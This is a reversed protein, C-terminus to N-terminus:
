AADSNPRGNVYLNALAEDIFETPIDSPRDALTKYLERTTTTDNFLGDDWAKIVANVLAPYDDDDVVEVFICRCGDHYEASEKSAERTYVAGRSVLMMCWSCAGPNPKRAWRTNSWRVAEKITEHGPIRVLKVLLAELRTRMGEPLQGTVLDGTISIVARRVQERDLSRIPRAPEGSPGRMAGIYTVATSAASGGYIDAIQYVAEIALERSQSVSTGAPIRGIINQFRNVARDTLKNLDREFKRDGEARILSRAM